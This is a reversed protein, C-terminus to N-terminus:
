VPSPSVKFCSFAKKSSVLLIVSSLSIEFWIISSNVSFSLSYLYFTLCYRIISLFLNLKLSRSLLCLRIINAISFMFLISSNITNLATSCIASKLSWLYFPIWIISSYFATKVWFSSSCTTIISLWSAFNFSYISALLLVEPVSFCPSTSIFALKM